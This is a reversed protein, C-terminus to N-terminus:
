KEGNSTDESENDEVVSNGEFVPQNNALISPITNTKSAEFLTRIFSKSHGNGSILVKM